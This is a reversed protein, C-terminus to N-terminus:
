PFHREAEINLFAPIDTEPIDPLKTHMTLMWNLPLAVVCNRERIEEAELKSRMEQGIVTADGTLPSQSLDFEIRTAVQLDTGSRRLLAVQVHVGEFAIGLIASPPQKGVM